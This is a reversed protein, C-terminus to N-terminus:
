DLGEYNLVYVDAPQNARWQKEAGHLVQIKLGCFDAWKSIEAPWVTQAVRLPALVLAPGCDTVRTKLVKLAALVISTKGLGPDLFLGAGGRELLHKVAKLQYEHPNWPRSGLSQMISSSSLIAQTESNDM